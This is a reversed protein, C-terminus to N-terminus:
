GLVSVLHEFLQETPAPYPHSLIMAPLGAFASELAEREHAVSAFETTPTPDAFGMALLMDDFPRKEFANSFAMRAAIEAGHAEESTVTPDSSSVVLVLRDIQSQAMVRGSWFEHSDVHVFRQRGIVAGLRAWENQLPVRQKSMWNISNEIRHLLRLRRQKSAELRQKANPLDDLHWDWVRIPEHIGFMTKTEPELLMWEDGVYTAGHEMFPLLVETKGGKAWGVVLVGEGQWILGTGHVPVLGCAPAAQVVAQMLLPVKGSDRPRRLTLRDATLDIHTKSRQPTADLAYFGIADMGADLGVLWGAGASVDSTYFIEVVASDAASTPESGLQRSVAALDKPGPDHLRVRLRGAIVFDIQQQSDQEPAGGGRGQVPWLTGGATDASEPVM